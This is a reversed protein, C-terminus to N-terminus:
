ILTQYSGDSTSATLQSKGDETPPLSQKNLSLLTQAPPIISCLCRSSYVCSSYVDLVIFVLVYVDLVIFVLVYVDLVIFVLVYVDLVIFVLVYVDLVIFVLVYVDLVIFVLVYVDLVIFVLVYVCSSYVDLVIFM